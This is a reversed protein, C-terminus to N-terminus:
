VDGEARYQSKHPDFGDPYRASLKDINKQMVDDMNLGLTECCLAIYWLVDGLEKAFHDMDFSLGQFFVKKVMDACEGAEGCLGMVGNALADAEDLELNRTRMALVQYEKGTM